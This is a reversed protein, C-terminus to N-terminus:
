TFGAAPWLYESPYGFNFCRTCRQHVEADGWNFRRGCIQKVTAEGFTWKLDTLQACATWRQHVQSGITKHVNQWSETWMGSGDPESRTWTRNVVRSGAFTCRLHALHSGITWSQTVKTESQTAHKVESKDRACRRNVKPLGCAFRFTLWLQVLPKGKPRGRGRTEKVESQAKTRMQKAKQSVYPEGLPSGRQWGCTLWLRVLPERTTWRKSVETWMQHVYPAGKPDGRARM